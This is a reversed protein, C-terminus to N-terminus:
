ISRVLRQVTNDTRSHEEQTDLCLAQV